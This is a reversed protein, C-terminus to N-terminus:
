FELRGEGLLNESVLSILRCRSVDLCTQIRGSVDSRTRAHLSSQSNEFDKMGKRKQKMQRCKGICILFYQDEIALFCGFVSQLGLM